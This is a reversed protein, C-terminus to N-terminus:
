QSNKQLAKFMREMKAQLDVTKKAKKDNLHVQIPENGIKSSNLDQEIKADELSEDKVSEMDSESDSDSIESISSKPPNQSMPKKEMKLMLDIKSEM